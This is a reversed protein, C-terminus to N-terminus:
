AAADDGGRDPAHEECLWAPRGAIIHIRTADWECGPASCMARHRRKDAYGM